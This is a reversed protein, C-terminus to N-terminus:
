YVWLEGFRVFGHSPGGKKTGVRAVVDCRAGLGGVFPGLVKNQKSM